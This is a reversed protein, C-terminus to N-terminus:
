KNQMLRKQLLNQKYETAIKMYRNKCLLFYKAFITKFQENSIIPKFEPVQPSGKIM